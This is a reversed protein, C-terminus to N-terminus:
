TGTRAAAGDVQNNVVVEVVPTVNGNPDFFHMGVVQETYVSDHCTDFLDDCPAIM